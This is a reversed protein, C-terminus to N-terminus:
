EKFLATGHAVSAQAGEANARVAAALRVRSSWELIGDFNLSEWGPVGYLSTLREALYRDEPILSVRRMAAAVLRDSPQAECFAFERPVLAALSLYASEYAATRGRESERESTAAEVSRGHSLAFLLPERLPSADRLLAVADEPLTRSSTSQLASPASSAAGSAGAAVPSAPVATGLARHRSARRARFDPHSRLFSAPM